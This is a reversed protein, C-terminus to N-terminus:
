KCKKIQFKMKMKMKMKMIKNNSNIKIKRPDRTLISYTCLLDLFFNSCSQM